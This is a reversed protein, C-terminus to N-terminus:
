RPYFFIRYLSTVAPPIKKAEMWRGSRNETGGMGRTIPIPPEQEPSINTLAHLLGTGASRSSFM